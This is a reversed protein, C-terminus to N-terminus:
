RVATAAIRKARAERYESFGPGVIALLSGVGILPLLSSKDVCQRLLQLRASKLVQDTADLNSSGGRRGLACWRRLLGRRVVWGLVDSRVRAAVAVAGRTLGATACGLGVLISGLVPFDVDERIVPCRKSIESDLLRWPGHVLLIRDGDIPDQPHRLERSGRNSLNDRAEDRSIPAKGALDRVSSRLRALRAVQTARLGLVELQGRDPDVEHILLQRTRNGLLVRRPSQDRLRILGSSWSPTM